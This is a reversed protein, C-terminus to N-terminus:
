IKAYSVTLDAADDTVIILGKSLEVNYKLDMEADLTVVAVTARAADTAATGDIVTATGAGLNVTIGHLLVPGTQYIDTTAAASIHSYKFRMDGINAM